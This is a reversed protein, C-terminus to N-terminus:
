SLLVIQVQNALQFLDAYGHNIDGPIAIAQYPAQQAEDLLIRIHLLETRRQLLPRPAHQGFHPHRHSVISLPLLDEFM